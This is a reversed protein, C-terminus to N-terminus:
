NDGLVSVCAQMDTTSALTPTGPTTVVAYLSTSGLNIARGVSDQGYVTHTGLVSSYNTLKITPLVKFVDAANIVPAGHDSLTSASPNAQFFTVDFEATQADKFDLRISQLIGTPLTGIANTFNLLGGVVYGATYSSATVTPTLCVERTMGGVLVTNETGSPIAGYYVSL